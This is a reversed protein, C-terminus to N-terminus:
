FTTERVRFNTTKVLSVDIKSGFFIKKDGSIPRPLDYIAWFIWLRLNLLNHLCFIHRYCSGRGDVRSLLRGDRRLVVLERHVEDILGFECDGQRVGSRGGARVCLRLAARLGNTCGERGDHREVGTHRELRAGVRTGEHDLLTGRAFFGAPPNYISM